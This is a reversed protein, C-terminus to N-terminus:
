KEKSSHFYIFIDLGYLKIKTIQVFNFLHIYINIIKRRYYTLEERIYM